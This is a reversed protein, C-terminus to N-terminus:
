PWSPTTYKTVVEDGLLKMTGATAGPTEEVRVWFDGLEASNVWTDPDWPDFLPIAAMAFPLAGRITLRMLVTGVMALGTSNDRLAIPQALGWLDFEHLEAEALNLGIEGNMNGAEMPYPYMNPATGYFKQTMEQIGYMRVNAAILENLRTRIPIINDSNINVEYHELVTGLGMQYYWSQLYLNSYTPGRAVTMNEQHSTVNEFRYIESTKIYGKPVLTTDRLMHLVCNLQPLYAENMAHGCGWGNVNGLGFNYEIRLEPDSVKGLDLMYELDHYHRGLNIYWWEEAAGGHMNKYDHSFHPTKKYLMLALLQRADYSKVVQSGNVVVEIKTIRDHLWTDPQTFGGLDNYGHVYMEIGSLLGKNPLDITWLGTYAPFTQNERIYRQQFYHM